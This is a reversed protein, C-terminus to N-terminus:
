GVKFRWRVALASLLLLALSLISQLTATIIIPLPLLSSAPTEGVLQFISSHGFLGFPRVIQKISFQIALSPISGADLNPLGKFNAAYVLTFLLFLFVLWALPLFIRQGYDSMAEYMWSIFKMFKRKETHRRCKMELAYFRLQEQRARKEEMDLKLTRYAMASGASTTDMFEADTFNTNQHLRCNHFRPAKHFACGKFSTARQFERNEFDVEDLFKSDEFDVMGGFAAADDDNGTATFYARGKFKINQFGAQSNFRANQFIAEKNFRAKGFIVDEDFRADQFDTVGGFRTKQFTASKEFAAGQFYTGGAGTFKANEFRASAGFRADQFSAAGEFLANGFDADEGFRADRFTTKVSHFRAGRFDARFLFRAKYFRTSKGGFRTNRFDVGGNFETHAFDVDPLEMGRFNAGSPFIVGSLDLHEQHESANRCLNQIIAYFNEREDDTWNEKEAPNGSEDKLPAHFPCLKKGDVEILEDEHFEYLFQCCAPTRGFEKDHTHECLM